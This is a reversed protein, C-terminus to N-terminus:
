FPMNLFQVLLEPHSFIIIEKIIDLIHIFHAVFPSDIRTRHFLFSDQPALYIGLVCSVWVSTVTYTSTSTYAVSLFLFILVSSLIKRNKNQELVLM